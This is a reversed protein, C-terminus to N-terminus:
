AAAPARMAACARAFHPKLYFIARHEHRDLPGDPGVMADLERRIAHNGDIGGADFMGSSLLQEVAKEAVGQATPSTPGRAKREGCARDILTKIAALLAVISAEGDIAARVFAELRDLLPDAATLFDLFLRRAGEATFDCRAWGTLDKFNSRDPCVIELRVLPDDKAYVKFEPSTSNAVFRLTLGDGVEIGSTRHYADWRREVSGSITAHQLIRTAFIANQVSLDRCAEAYKLWIQGPTWTPFAATMADVAYEVAQGLMPLQVRTGEPGRYQQSLLNEGGDFAVLRSDPELKGRVMVIGNGQICCRNTLLLDDGRRFAHIDIRLLGAAAGKDTELEFTVQEYGESDKSAPTTIEGVREVALALSADPDRYFGEIEGEFGVSYRDVMAAPLEPKVKM